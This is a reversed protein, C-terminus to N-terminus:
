LKRYILIPETEDNGETDIIAFCGDFLAGVNIIHRRDRFLRFANNKDAKYEVIGKEPDQYVYSSVHDHGRIMVRYGKQAMIDFNEKCYKKYLENNENFLRVWLDKIDDPCDIYSRLSGAYGGHSILTPYAAWLKGRDLFIKVRNAHEGFLREIFQISLPDERLEKALEYGSKGQAKFTYSDILIGKLLAHDHNGPIVIVKKGRSAYDEQLETFQRITKTQDFDGLCILSDPDEKRLAEELASLDTGHMDGFIAYKM